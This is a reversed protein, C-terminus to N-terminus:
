KKHTKCTDPCSFCNCCSCNYILAVFIGFFFCDLFGWLFAWLGGVWSASMGVYVSGLTHIMELGYGWRLGAWCLLMWGLGAILGLAFGLRVPRLKGCQVM